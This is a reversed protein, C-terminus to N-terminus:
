PTLTPRSRLALRYRLAKRILNINAIARRRDAGYAPAVALAAFQAELMAYLRYDPLTILETFEPITQM